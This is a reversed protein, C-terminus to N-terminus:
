LSNKQIDVKKPVFIFRRQIFWSLFFLSAESIAKILIVYGGFLHFFLETIGWSILMFMAVLTLYKTIQKVFDTAVKFVYYRSATFNYIISAIRAFIFSLLINNTNFYVLAFVVYDILTTLISTFFFRFFISGITISDKITRYHSGANGEFYVTEIPVQLISNPYENTIRVLTCFEYDFRDYPVQIFFGVKDRPFFRLGTQTDGLRYGTFLGFLVSTITNGLKSRFPVEPGFTRVGLTFRGDVAGKQAVNAVDKALHQGDADCCVMGTSSPDSELLYHNLGTKLAQGKGRNVAHRLVTVDGDRAALSEFIGDRDSSSGDNVVLIRAFAGLEALRDVLDVLKQDPQYAPILVWPLSQREASM